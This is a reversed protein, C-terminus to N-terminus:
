MGFCGVKMAERSKNRRFASCSSKAPYFKWVVVRHFRVLMVSVKVEVVSEMCVITRVIVRESSVGNREM